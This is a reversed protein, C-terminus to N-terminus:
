KLAGIVSNILDACERLPAMFGEYASETKETGLLERQWNIFYLADSFEKRLRKLEELSLLKAAESLSPTQKNM